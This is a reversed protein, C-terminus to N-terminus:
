FIYMKYHIYDINDDKSDINITIMIIYKSMIIVYDDMDNVINFYLYYM